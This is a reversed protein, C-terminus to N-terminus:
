PEGRKQHSKVKYSDQLALKNEGSHASKKHAWPLPLHCFAPPADKSVKSSDKCTTSQMDIVEDAEEVDFEANMPQFDHIIWSILIM